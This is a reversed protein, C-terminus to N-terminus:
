YLRAQTQVPRQHCLGLQGHLVSQGSLIRLVTYRYFPLSSVCSTILTTDLDDDYKKMYDTDYEMTERKYITYFDLQPNDNKIPPLYTRLADRVVHFM